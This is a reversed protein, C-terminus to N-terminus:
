TLKVGTLFSILGGLVVFAGYILRRNATIMDTKRCPKLKLEDVSQKIYRIDAKLTAIDERISVIEKEM